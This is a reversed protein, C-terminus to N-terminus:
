VRIGRAWPSLGHARLADATAETSEGHGRPYVARSSRSAHASAPNGTGVPISGNDARQYARVEPIGRAWPSLGKIPQRIMLFRASEGHGRPYVWSLSSRWTSACPNGTGM